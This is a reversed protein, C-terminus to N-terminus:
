CNKISDGVVWEAGSAGKPSTSQGATANPMGFQHMGNLTPLQPVQGLQGAMAPNFALSMLAQLDVGPMQWGQQPLQMGLRQQQLPGVQHPQPQLPGAQQSQQLQQQLLGCQQPPQTSLGTTNSAQPQQPLLQLPQTNMQAPPQQQSQAIAALLASQQMASGSPGSANSGQDGGQQLQGIAGMPNQAALQALAAQQGALAFSPALQGLTGLMSGAFASYPFQQGGPTQQNGPLTTGPPQQQPPQRPPECAPTGSQLSGHRGAKSAPAEHQASDFTATGNTADLGRCLERLNLHM